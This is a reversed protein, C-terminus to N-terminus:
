TSIKRSSAGLLGFLTQNEEKWLVLISPPAHGIVLVMPHARVQFSFLTFSGEQLFLDDLALM